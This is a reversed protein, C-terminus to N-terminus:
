HGFNFLITVFYVWCSVKKNSLIVFFDHASQRTRPNHNWSLFRGKSKYSNNFIFFKLLCRYWYDVCQCFLPYHWYLLLWVILFVFLWIKWKNRILLSQNHSLKSSNIATSSERSYKYSKVSPQPLKSYSKLYCWCFGCQTLWHAELIGFIYQM